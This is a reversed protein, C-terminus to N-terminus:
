RGSAAIAMQKLLKARSRALAKMADRANEFAESITEAETVLGPDIPSTVVYGGEEAEEVTLVLKGDSVTYRKAM